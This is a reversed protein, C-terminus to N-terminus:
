KKEGPTEFGKAKAQDRLISKLAEDLAKESDTKPQKALEEDVKKQRKASLDNIKKQIGAREEAKKKLFALREEPKLKKIEDCLEEEKIKTIDFDKEKMRDVLDWTSNRYLAGAKSEARAVSNATGAGPAGKAAAANKDQALQNAARDKGEVGYAVYTKNLEEGLKIIQEDFETKVVVQTTARNMDINMYRGGCTAAFTSWGAAEGSNASGCYITNVIVGAKKAQAAVDSLAVQKDQDVPENGAVFILRLANKDKSWKQEDLATKSVRAVYEDGGNTHLANLKKYVEDLDETLDVEKRVWGKDAPYAPCGYSYLSVRLNPTPKMRALENVVDWLRLKASEILGNMSGSVDLCLVLDVAKGEAAAAPAAPAAAAPEGAAPPAAPKDQGWVPAILVATLAAAITWTSLRSARSM